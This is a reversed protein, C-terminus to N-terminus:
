TFARFCVRFNREAASAKLKSIAGTAKRVIELPAYDPGSTNTLGYAAILGNLRQYLSTKDLLPNRLYRTEFDNVSTILEAVRAETTTITGYKNRSSILQAELDIANRRTRKSNKERRCFWWFLCFFRDGFDGAIGLAVVARNGGKGVNGRLMKRPRNKPM